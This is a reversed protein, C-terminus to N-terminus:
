ASQMLTINKVVYDSFYSQHYYDIVNCVTAITGFILATAATVLAVGYVVAYSSFFGNVSACVSKTLKILSHQLKSLLGSQVDDSIELKQALKLVNYSEAVDMAFTPIETAGCVADFVTAVSGLAKNMPNFFAASFLGMATFETINHTFEIVGRFSRLSTEALMKPFGAVLSFFYPVSTAGTYAGLDNALPANGYALATKKMLNMLDYAGKAEKTWAECTALFGGSTKPKEITVQYSGVMVNQTM